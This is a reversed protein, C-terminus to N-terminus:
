EASKSPTSEETSPTENPTVVYVKGDYALSFHSGEAINMRSRLSGMVKQLSQNADVAQISLGLLERFGKGIRYTLEQERTQLSNIKQMEEPEVQGVLTSQKLTDDSM